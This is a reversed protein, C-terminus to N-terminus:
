VAVRTLLFVVLRLVFFFPLRPRLSAKESIATSSKKPPVSATSRTRSMGLGSVSARKM